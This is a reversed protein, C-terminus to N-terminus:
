RKEDKSRGYWRLFFLLSVVALFGLIIYIILWTTKPSPRPVDFGRRTELPKMAADIRDLKQEIRDLKRRQERYFAVYEAGVEDPGEATGITEIEEVLGQIAKEVSAYKKKSRIRGLLIEAESALAEIRPENINWKDRFKIDFTRTEAPELTLDQFVYTIGRDPDTGVNLGASDLVDGPKIERPLERRLPIERSMTPSTNQVTIRMVATKYEEPEMASTQMRSTFDESTGWVLSGPDKQLAMVMNEIRAIDKKVSTLTRRDAEYARIHQFPKAKPIANLAQSRRIEELDAEIVRRLANMDAAYDSGELQRVLERARRGLADLEEPPIVWIDRIEVRFDRTERPGLEIEKHVYYVDKKVDYGIELGDTDLVDEPRVRQPLNSKISVQNPEDVPNGAQIWLVVKGAVATGCLLMAVVSMALGLRKRRGGVTLRCQVQKVLFEMFTTMRDQM